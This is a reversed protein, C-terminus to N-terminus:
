KVHDFNIANELRHSHFNRIYPRCDHIQSGQVLNALETMVAGQTSDRSSDQSHEDLIEM